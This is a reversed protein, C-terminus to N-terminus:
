RDVVVRQLFTTVFDRLKQEPPTGPQWQPDPVSQTCTSAALRVAEAYFQEKSGFHFNVAGLNVGAKDTIERVTTARLGKEAVLPGAAELLRERNDDATTMRPM